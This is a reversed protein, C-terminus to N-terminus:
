VKQNKNERILVNKHVFSVLGLGNQYWNEVHSALIPVIRKRFSILHTKYSGGQATVEKGCCECIRTGYVVPKHISKVHNAVDTSREFLIGCYKCKYTNVFYFWCAEL